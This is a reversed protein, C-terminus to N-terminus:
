ERRGHGRPLLRAAPGGAGASTPCVKLARLTRTARSRYTPPRALSGRAAAHTGANLPHAGLLSSRPGPCRIDYTVRLGPGVSNPLAHVTVVDCM